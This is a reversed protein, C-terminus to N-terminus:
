SATFLSSINGSRRRHIFINAVSNSSSTLSALLLTLSILGLFTLLERGKRPTKSPRKSSKLLCCQLQGFYVTNGKNDGYKRLLVTNALLVVTKKKGFFEVTNALFVVTNALFVKQKALFVVTNTCFSHFPLFNDLIDLKNCLLEFPNLITWFPGFHDM